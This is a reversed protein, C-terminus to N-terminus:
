LLNSNFVNEIDDLNVGSKELDYIRFHIGKQFNMDDDAVFEICDLLFLLMRQTTRGLRSKGTGFVPMFIPKNCDMRSLYKLLKLIINHIKESDVHAHQTKDFKTLAFLVYVNGEFELQVCTGLPYKTTKGMDRNPNERGNGLDQLQRSIETDLQGREHVRVYRDVFMGHLTNHDIVVDDVQTDFYENVPIVIVGKGKFLDAEEVVVRHNGFSLSIKKKTKMQFYTYIISVTLLIAIILLTDLWTFKQAQWNYSFAILTAIASLTGLAAFMHRFIDKWKMSVLANRLMLLLRKEGFMVFLGFVKDM